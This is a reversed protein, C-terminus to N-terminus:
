ERQGTLMSRLWKLNGSASPRGYLWAFADRLAKGGGAAM